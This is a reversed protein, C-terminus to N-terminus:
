RVVAAAGYVGCNSSWTSARADGCSLDRVRRLKRDYIGHVLTDCVGCHAKEGRRELRLVRAKPDGFVGRM